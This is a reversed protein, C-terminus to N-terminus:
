TTTRRITEMVHIGQMTPTLDVIDVDLKKLKLLLQERQLQLTYLHEIDQNTLDNQETDYLPTFPTLLWTNQHKTHFLSLATFLAPLNTELDSLIVVHRPKSDKILRRAAEYIGSAQTPHHITRKGKALFPFITQLFQQHEKPFGTTKVPIDQPGTTKTGHLHQPLDTLMTFIPHYDYTPPITSVLKHEDFALLSVPHRQSQLMKTLHLVLNSAHDIKSHEGKSRRMTTSCDLLITTEIIEKKEFLKTMLTQLRSTAKWEIDKLRDGSQYTRIGEMDAYTETGLISPMTLEIHERTSVQKAKKIENPDSHVMVMNPVPYDQTTTFLNWRDQYTISVHDFTHQGRHTFMLQYQLTVPTHPQSFMTTTHTGKTLTTHDALHDTITLHLHVPLQNITTKINVPHNTFLPQELIKRQVLPKITNTQFALKGYLLFFFLTIALLAPFVNSFLFGQLFLIFGLFLLFRSYQTYEISSM